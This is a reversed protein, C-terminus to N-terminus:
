ALTGTGLAVTRTWWSSALKSRCFFISNIFFFHCTHFHRYRVPVTTITNACDCLTHAHTAAAAAAPPSAGDSNKVFDCLLTGTDM